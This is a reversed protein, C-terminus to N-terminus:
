HGHKVVVKNEKKKKDKYISFLFFFFLIKLACILKQFLCFLDSPAVFTAGVTMLPYSLLLRCVGAPVLLFGRSNIVKGALPAM